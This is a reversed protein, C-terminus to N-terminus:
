DEPLFVEKEKLLPVVVEVVYRGVRSWATSVSCSLEDAVSSIHEHLFFKRCAKKEAPTLPAVNPSRSQDELYASVFQAWPVGPFKTELVRKIKSGSYLRDVPDKGQPDKRQLAPARKRTAM